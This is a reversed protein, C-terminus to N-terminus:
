SFIYLKKILTFGVTPTSGVVKPKCFRYEALQTLCAKKKFELCSLCKNYVHMYIETRLAKSLIPSAELRHLKTHVEGVKAGQTKPSVLHVVWPWNQPCDAQKM